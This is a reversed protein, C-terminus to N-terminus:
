SLVCFRGSDPKPKARLYLKGEGAGLKRSQLGGEAQTAQAGVSM